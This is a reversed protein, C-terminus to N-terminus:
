WWLIVRTRTRVTRVAGWYHVAGWYPLICLQVYWVPDNWRLRWPPSLPLIPFDRQDRAAIWNKKSKLKRVLHHRMNDQHSGVQRRAIRAHYAAVITFLGYNNSGSSQQQISAVSLLLGNHAILPKYMQTIQLEVSAIPKGMNVKCGHKENM